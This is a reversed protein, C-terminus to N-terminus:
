SGLPGSPLSDLRQRHASHRVWINVACLVALGILSAFM